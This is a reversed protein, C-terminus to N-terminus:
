AAAQDYVGTESRIHYEQLHLEYASLHGAELLIQMGVLDALEEDDNMCLIHGLEHAMIVLMHDDTFWDKSLIREDVVILPIEIDPGYVAFAHSRDFRTPGLGEPNM